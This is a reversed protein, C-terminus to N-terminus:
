ASSNLKVSNFHSSLYGKKWVMCTITGCINAILSVDVIIVNVKTNFQMFSFESSMWIHFYKPFTKLFSFMTCVFARSSTFTHCFLCGFLEFLRFSHFWLHIWDIPPHLAHATLRWKNTHTCVFHIAICQRTNPIEILSGNIYIYIDISKWIITAYFVFTSVNFCFYFYFYFDFYCPVFSLHCIVFHCIHCDNTQISQKWITFIYVISMQVAFVASQFNQISHSCKNWTVERESMENM